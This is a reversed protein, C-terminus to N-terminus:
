LLPARESLPLEKGVQAATVAILTDLKMALEAMEDESLVDRGDLLTPSLTNPVVKRVCYRRCTGRGERSDITARDVRSVLQLTPASLASQGLAFTSAHADRNLRM